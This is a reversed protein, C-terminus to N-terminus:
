FFLLAAIASIVFNIVVAVVAVAITFVLARDEPVRVVIPAGIYFTYLSYLAGLLVIILNLIPIFALIMALWWATGSYVVLKMAQPEDTAGGFKPALFEVIKGVIWIAVLSLVYQVIALFLARFFGVGAFLLAIFGVVAPIAALPMAYGTFLSRADTAEGAVVAWEERPRTLMGQARAVIDM